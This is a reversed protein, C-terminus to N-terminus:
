LLNTQGGISNQTFTQLRYQPYPRVIVLEQELAIDEAVIQDLSMALASIL